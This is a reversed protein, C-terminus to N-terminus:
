KCHSAFIASFKLEGDREEVGRRFTLQLPDSQTTHPLIADQAVPL